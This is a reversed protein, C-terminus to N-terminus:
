YRWYQHENEFIQIAEGGEYKNLIVEPQKSSTSRSFVISKTISLYWWTSKRSCNGGSSIELKKSAKGSHLNYKWCGIYSTICISSTVNKNKLFSQNSYNQQGTHQQHSIIKNIRTINAKSNHQHLDQTGDYQEGKWWADKNHSQELQDFLFSQSPWRHFLPLITSLETDGSCTDM